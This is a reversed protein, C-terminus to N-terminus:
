GGTILLDKWQQLFREKTAAAATDRLLRGTPAKEAPSRLLANGMADAIAAPHHPSVQLCVGGVAEVLASGRSVIPLLGMYAAELAPMGFGELLSPLVFAEANAYLWRLQADPVYGMLRVGPVTAALEAIEAHGAGRSGCLIYGFGQRHFEGDRYARLAAIQNKRTEFAGVTLFFPGSANPVAEAPGDFLETRLYLPITKLFRFDSGFLLEFHSASFNSVFVVGPRVCRIKEYALRYNSCTREDYLDSHTLPGVDHCLVIDNETLSSRLVYLPDLFLRFGSAGVRDRILFAESDGLWNIELMMLRAVIKRVLGEPAFSGLRWYRVGAWGPVFERILDKAIHYAGTRNLISLSNDFVFTNGHARGGAAHLGSPLTRENM